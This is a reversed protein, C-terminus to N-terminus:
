DAAPTRYHYSYADRFGLRDYIRRAPANAADVQLYAIRAGSRRARDLL